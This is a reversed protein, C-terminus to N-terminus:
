YIDNLEALPTIDDIIMILYYENNFYFARTSFQLYKLVKNGDTKYFERAIKGKYINKRNVYALLAMERLECGSCKSTKGCDNM